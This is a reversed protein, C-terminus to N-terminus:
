SQKVCKGINVLAGNTSKWLQSRATGDREQVQCSTSFQLNFILLVQCFNAKKSVTFEKENDQLFILGTKWLLFSNTITGWIYVIPSQWRWLQEINNSQSVSTM